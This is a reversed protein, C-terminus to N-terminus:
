CGVFFEGKFLFLKLDFNFIELVVFFVSKKFIEFDDKNEGEILFCIM